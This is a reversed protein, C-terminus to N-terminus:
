NNLICHMTSLNNSKCVKYKYLPIALVATAIVSVTFLIVLIDKLKEKM